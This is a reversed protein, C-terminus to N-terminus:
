KLWVRAVLSACSRMAAKMAAPPCVYSTSSAPMPASAFETLRRQHRTLTVSTLGTSRPKCTGRTRASHRRRYRWGGRSASSSRARASRWVAASRGDESADITGRGPEAKSVPPDCGCRCSSPCQRVRHQSPEPLPKSASWLHALPLAWLWRAFLFALNIRSRLLLTRWRRQSGQRQLASESRPPWSETGM